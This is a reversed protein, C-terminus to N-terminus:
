NGIGSNWVMHLILPSFSVRGLNVHHRFISSLTFTLVEFLLQIAALILIYIRGVKVFLNVLHTDPLPNSVCRKTGNFNQYIPNLPTSQATYGTLFFLFLLFLILKSYYIARGFKRWKAFILSQVLPHSLLNEREHKVQLM